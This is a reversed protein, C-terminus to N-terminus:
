ESFWGFYRFDQYFTNYRILDGTLFQYRFGSVFAHLVAMIVIYPKRAEGKQAMIMGLIIVAAILIYYISKGM